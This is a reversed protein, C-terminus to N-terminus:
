RFIAACVTAMDIALGTSPRYTTIRVTSTTQGTNTTIVDAPTTGQSLVSTFNADSIATTFNVTYDGLGNDTISSVNGSGRIAVTGTGNFNVWARCAYAIAVSGYGSNFQFNANASNSDFRGVEIGGRTFGITNASPFYIGTDPDGATTISPLAASGTSFTAVGTINATTINATTINANTLTVNSNTLNINVNNSPILTLGTSSATLITTNGVNLSIQQSTAQITDAIITGAV